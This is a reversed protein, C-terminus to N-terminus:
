EFSARTKKEQLARSQEVKSKLNLVDLNTFLKFGVAQLPSQNDVVTRYSTHSRSVEPVKHSWSQKSNLKLSGARLKARSSFSAADVFTLRGESPWVCYWQKLRFFQLWNLDRVHRQAKGGAATPISRLVPALKWRRSTDQLRSPDLFLQPTLFNLM